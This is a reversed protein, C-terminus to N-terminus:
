SMYKCVKLATQLNTLIIRLIKGFHLAIEDPYMLKNNIETVGNIEM